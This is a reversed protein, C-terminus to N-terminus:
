RLRGWCDGDGEAALQVVYILLWDTTWTIREADSDGLILGDDLKGVVFGGARGSDTDADEDAMSFCIEEANLTM